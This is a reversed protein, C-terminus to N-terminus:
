FEYVKYYNNTCNEISYKEQFIRDQESIYNELFEKSKELKNIFGVIEDISSSSFIWDKSGDYDHNIQFSVVPVGRSIAELGAIGTVDKVNISIFVDMSELPKSTDNMEGLFSIKESNNKDKITYYDSGGGVWIIKSIYNEKSILTFIDLIKSPIREPVIRSITGIKQIKEIRKKRVFNPIGNKIVKSGFFKDDTVNIFDDRLYSSIKLITTTFFPLKMGSSHNTEIIKFNKSRTIFKYLYTLNLILTAYILHGHVIVNDNLNIQKKIYRFVDFIINLNQKKNFSTLQIKENLKRELIENNKFLTVVEVDHNKSQENSLSILFNEAGGQFLKPIIHIIRM